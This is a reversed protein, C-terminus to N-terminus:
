EGRRVPPVLSPLRKGDESHEILVTLRKLRTEEKKASIVWWTATRRYSPPQSVFFDWAKRNARFAAEHEPGLSANAREYSYLNAREPDRTEFVRRGAPRMRGSELLKQAREINVVSWVSRVRRPTFRIMWDREDLRKTLGDIWGFCLAEDLAERYTIGGAGSSKKHFGIWLETSRDHNQELWDRLQVASDFFTPHPMAALIGTTLWRPSGAMRCVDIDGTCTQREDRPTVPAIRRQASLLDAM